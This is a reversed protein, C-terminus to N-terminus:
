RRANRQVTAGDTELDFVLGAPLTDLVPRTALGAANLREAAWHNCLHIVSFHETSRYFWAEEGGPIFDARGSKLAFSREISIELRRYGAESLDVRHVGSRWLAEPSAHLPEIMVASPNNPAFGARFLDLVRHVSLGTEIYYRADGWGVEVFPKSPGSIKVADNLPGPDIRDTVLVLSTHFGNDILWVPVTPAGPRPPFLTSDGPKRVGFAVILVLFVAAGAILAARRVKLM